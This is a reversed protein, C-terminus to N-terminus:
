ALGSKEILPGFPAVRLIPYHSNYLSHDGTEKIRQWMQATLLQLQEAYLPDDILNTLEYPDDALNYLEDFDFGNFVFKWPGQWLVRQTLIMRGGFYEAYGSQFAEVATPDTLLATFPAADVTAIPQSGTLELLTPCLDHLGVSAEAVAGQAIGPGAMVLPINYIEEAASFNKCYLGHAGLLEGHDSTLVIITKELQGAAEIRDLLRGFQQDIETISAYYCAMAERRQRDSWHAWVRAAKRYIGPRGALDDHVNPALELAAVDYQAFAAEGCIFPDHPELVSVFCCWPDDGALVADLYDLALQTRIGMGRQVPPVSTVGYFRNPQYGPQTDLWGEVSYTAAKQAAVAAQTAETLLQSGEAGNVQWGFQALEGSREIHWKGFYGTRYGDEVLRQAWHPHEPRLCAQDDDVTHTVYLVGHNHPLLGTMLSARAPSCVANPTYAHTFRVGHAALRDFNPTQCPSAPDLVRGQMQDTMLFLINPKTTASNM